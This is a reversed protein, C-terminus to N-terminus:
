LEFPCGTYLLDPADEMDIPKEPSGTLAAIAGGLEKLMSTSYGPWHQRIRGDSDIVIVYASNEVRYDKVIRLSPDLVLPYTVSFLKAWKQAKDTETNIVGVFRAKPYATHLQNFFPQAAQSCPCGDKVFTLVVPGRQRLEDLTYTEGNNAIAEFAPAVRDVVSRSAEAMEKTVLHKKSEDVIVQPPVVDGSRVFRLRTWGYLIGLTAFLVVFAAAAFRSM